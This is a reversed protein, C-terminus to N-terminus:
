NEIATTGAIVWWNVIVVESVRFGTRTKGGTGGNRVITKAIIVIKRSSSRSRYSRYSTTSITITSITTKIMMRAYTTTTWWTVGDNTSIMRTYRRVEFRQFRRRCSYNNGRGEMMWLCLKKWEGWVTSLNGGDVMVVVVRELKRGYFLRCTSIFQFLKKIKKEFEGM